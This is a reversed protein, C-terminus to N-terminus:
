GHAAAHTSREVWLQEPGRLLNVRFAIESGIALRLDPMRTTLEKLVLQIQLRALNAGICYHIGKGFALTRRTGTRRVDFRDPDSWRSADHGTASLWLVVKSGVPIAVGGVTCDRTTMRRWLPVSSEFRIAEDVATPVYEPHDIIDQWAGPTTLLRHVTNSIMNSTTEHGAFSLSFLISAVERLSLADPDEQHIAVLASTLDDGPQEAKAAVHSRLYARYAVIAQAGAIQEVPLPRGGTLTARNDTWSRMRGWDGKPIGLLTFITTIPLPVAIADVMDFRDRGQLADLLVTLHERIQPTMAEIRRPTFSRTIPDRLRDHDPPDMSVMSESMRGEGEQLIHVAEPVLPAAPLQAATASFTDPDGLIADVLDYSTVVYSDISPAYFVPAPSNRLVEIPDALYRGGFPDFTEHVPCRLLKLDESVLPEQRPPSRGRSASSERM